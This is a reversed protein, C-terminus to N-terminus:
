REILNVSAGVYRPLRNAYSYVPYTIAGAYMMKTRTAGSEPDIYRVSFFAPRTASALTAAQADSMPAFKIKLKAKYGVIDGNMTGDATRGTNKSWIPERDISMEQVPPMATGGIYLEAM